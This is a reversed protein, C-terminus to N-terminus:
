GCKRKGGSAVRELPIFLEVEINEGQVPGERRGPHFFKEFPSAGSFDFNLGSFLDDFNIGSLLDEKSFGQVGSFGRVDYEARKKPDSLVAYAETIEKFREEAGPEKNRDPHYKLALSRSVDKIARQGADKAVGLV